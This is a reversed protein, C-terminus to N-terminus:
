HDMYIECPMGYLYHRWIKLAHVIAALELGHVHYNKERVKLHRYTYAMVRGDQMLVAGLGIRSADCCVTYSGSGIPMILVQSANLAIKLKQFSVECEEMRQFPADKQTLRTM